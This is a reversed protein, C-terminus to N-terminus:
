PYRAEIVHGAKQVNSAGDFLIANLHIGKPDLAEIHEEFMEAIYRADKKGGVEMHETCDIIDLVNCSNPTTVLVNMLPMGKVTAGDGLLCMGYLEADKAVNEKFRYWYLPIFPASAPTTLIRFYFGFCVVVVCKSKM